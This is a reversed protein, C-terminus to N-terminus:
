QSSSGPEQANDADKIDADDMDDTGSTTNLTDMESEITTDLTIVKAEQVEYVCSEHFYRGQSIVCDKLMWVEEEDDFVRKFSDRCAFCEKKGTDGAALIVPVYGKKAPEKEADKEAEKETEQEDYGPDHVWADKGMYWARQKIVSKKGERQLNERVHSEIHRNFGDGFFIDKKIGCKPCCNAKDHLDAIVSDYCIKFNHVNFSKLNPPHPRRVPGTPIPMQSEDLVPQSPQQQKCTRLIYKLYDSLHIKGDGTMHTGEPQPAAVPPAPAPKRAFNLHRALEYAPTPEVKVEPAPGGLRIEHRVGNITAFIPPGGFTGKFAYDGMFLEKSPGGFRITHEDGDILVKKSEGFALHYMEYAKGDFFIRNNEPVGEFKIEELVIQAPSTSSPSNSKPWQHIQPARPDNPAFAQHQIPSPKVDQLHGHVGEHHAVPGLFPKVDQPEGLPLNHLHPSNTRTNFHQRARHISHHATEDPHSPGPASSLLPLVLTLNSRPATSQSFPRKPARPGLEGASAQQRPDNQASEDLSRKTASSGDFRDYDEDVPEPKPQKLISKKPAQMSPPPRPKVPEPKKQVKPAAPPEARDARTKDRNGAPAASPQTAQPQAQSLPFPWAPDLEKVKMDLEYLKDKEFFDGWTRRLNFLGTRVHENAGVFTTCFVEVIIKPFHQQFNSSEINKLICDIVYLIPLRQESRVTEIRDRIIQVIAAAESQNEEALMTLLNIRMRNNDRLEGLVTRFEEAM